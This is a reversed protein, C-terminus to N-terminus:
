DNNSFKIWYVIGPNRRSCKYKIERKIVSWHSVTGTVGLKDFFSWTKERTNSSIKVQSSISISLLAFNKTVEKM